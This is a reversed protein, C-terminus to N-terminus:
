SSLVQKTYQLGIVGSFCVCYKKRPKCDFYVELTQSNPITSSRSGFLPWRLALWKSYYYGNSPSLLTSCSSETFNRREELFLINGMWDQLPDLLVVAVRVWATQQLKLPLSSPLERKEIAIFVRPPWQEGEGKFVCPKEFHKNLIKM